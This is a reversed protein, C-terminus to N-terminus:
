LNNVLVTNEYEKKRRKDMNARSAAFKDALLERLEFGDWDIPVKGQRIMAVVSERVSDTLEVVFRVQDNRQM